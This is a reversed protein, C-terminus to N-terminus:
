KKGKGRRSAPRTRKNGPGTTKSHPETAGQDTQEEAGEGHSASGKEDPPEPRYIETVDDSTVLKDPDFVVPRTPLVNSTTYMPTALLTGGTTVPTGILSSTGITGSVINGPASMFSQAQQLQRVAARIETVAAVVEGLAQESPKDSARYEALDLAVSIPSEIPKPDHELQEVQSTLEDRASKLVSTLDATDVFITRM